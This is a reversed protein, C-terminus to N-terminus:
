GFLVTFERVSLEANTDNPQVQVQLRSLACASDFYPSHIENLHILLLHVFFEVDATHVGSVSTCGKLEIMM